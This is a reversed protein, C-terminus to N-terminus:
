GDLSFELNFIGGVQPANEQFNNDYHCFSTYLKFAIEDDSSMFYHKFGMSRKEVLDMFRLSSMVEPGYKQPTQTSKTVPPM